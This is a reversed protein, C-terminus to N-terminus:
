PSPLDVDINLHMLFKRLPEGELLMNRHILQPVYEYIPFGQPVLWMITPASRFAMAKVMQARQALPYQVLYVNIFRKLIRMPQRTRLAWGLVSKYGLKGAERHEPSAVVGGVDVYSSTSHTYMQVWARLVDLNYLVDISHFAYDLSADHIATIQQISRNHISLIEQIIEQQRGFAEIQRSVSEQHRPVREALQAELAAIDRSFRRGPNHQNTEQPYDDRSSLRPSPGTRRRKPPHEEM